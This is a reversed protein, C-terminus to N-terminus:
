IVVKIPVCHAFEIVDGSVGAMLARGINYWTGTTAKLTIVTGDGNSQLFDGAAVTGGLTCRMTGNAAGLIAVNVPVDLDATAVSDTTIGLPIETNAAGIACNTAVSGIIVLSFRNPIAADAIYSKNGTGATGEAINAFHVQPTFRVGPLFGFLRKIGIPLLYIKRWTRKFGRHRPPHAEAKFKRRSLLLPMILWVLALALLCLSIILITKM